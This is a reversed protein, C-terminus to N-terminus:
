INVVIKKREVTNLSKFMHPFDNFLRSINKYNYKYIDVLESDSNTLIYIKDYRINYYYTKENHIFEYIKGYKNTNNIFLSTDIIIHKLFKKSKIITFPNKRQHHLGCLNKYKKTRTCQYTEGNMHEVIACCKNINIRPSIYINVLITDLDINKISSNSIISKYLDDIKKCFNFLLNNMPKLSTAYNVKYDLLQEFKYTIYVIDYYL